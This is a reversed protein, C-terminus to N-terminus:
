FLEVSGIQTPIYLQPHRHTYEKMTTFGHSSPLVHHIVMACLLGHQQPGGNNIKKESVLCRETEVSFPLPTPDTFSAADELSCKDSRSVDKKVTHVWLRLKNLSVLQSPPHPTPHHWRCKISEQCNSAYREQFPLIITSSFLFCSLAWEILCGFVGTVPSSRAAANPHYNVRCGTPVFSSQWRCLFLPSKRINWFM